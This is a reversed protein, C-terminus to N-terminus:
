KVNVLSLAEVDGVLTATNPVERTVTLSKMERLTEPCRNGGGGGRNVAIRINSFVDLLRLFSSRHDVNPLRVLDTRVTRAAVDVSLV